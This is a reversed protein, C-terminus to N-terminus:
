AEEIDQEVCSDTKSDGSPLLDVTGMFHGARTYRTVDCFYLEEKPEQLPL